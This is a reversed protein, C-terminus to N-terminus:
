DGQSDTATRIAEVRAREGVVRDAAFREAATLLKNRAQAIMQLGAPIAIDALVHTADKIRLRDKVLGHGRAQSLLAHFVRQHGEAGLRKRFGQMAMIIRTRGALKAAGDIRISPPALMTSIVIAIEDIYQDIRVAFQEGRENRGFFRGLMTPKCRQIKLEAFVSRVRCTRGPILRLIALAILSTVLRRKTEGFFSTIRARQHLLTNRPIVLMASRRRQIIVFRFIFNQPLALQRLFVCCHLRFMRTDFAPKAFEHVTVSTPSGAIAPQDSHLNLPQNLSCNMIQITHQAQQFSFRAESDVLTPMKGRRGTSAVLQPKSHSVAEISCRVCGAFLGDVWFGKGAAEMPCSAPRPGRFPRADKESRPMHFFVATEM